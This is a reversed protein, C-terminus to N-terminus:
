DFTACYTIYGKGDTTLYLYDLRVDASMLLSGAFYTGPPFLDDIYFASIGYAPVYREIVLLGGPAVPQGTQSYLSLQVTAPTSTPNHLAISTAWLEDCLAWPVSAVYETPVPVDDEFVWVFEGSTALVNQYYDEIDVRLNWEGTLKEPKAIWFARDWYFGRTPVYVAMNDFQPLENGIAHGKAFYVRIAAQGTYPYYEPITMNIYLRNHNGYDIDYISSVTFWEVAAVPAALMALALVIGFLRAFSM